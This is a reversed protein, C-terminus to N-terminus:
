RRLRILASLVLAVASMASLLAWGVSATAAWITLASLTLVAAILAIFTRTPM